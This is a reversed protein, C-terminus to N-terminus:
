EESHAGSIPAEANHTAYEKSHTGGAARGRRTAYVDRDSAHKGATRRETACPRGECVKPTDHPARTPAHGKQM